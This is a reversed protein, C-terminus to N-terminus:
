VMVGGSIIECIEVCDCGDNFKKCIYEDGYNCIHCAAHENSVNYKESIIKVKQFFPNLEDKLDDIEKQVKPSDIGKANRCIDYRYCGECESMNPNLLDCDSCFIM